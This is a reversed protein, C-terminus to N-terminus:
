ARLCVKVFVSMSERSASTLMLPPKHVPYGRVLSFQRYIYPRNVNRHQHEGCTDANITMSFKTFMWGPAHNVRDALM